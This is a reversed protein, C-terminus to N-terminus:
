NEIIFALHKLAKSIHKEVATTSINLEEAIERNKLGDIRSMTFVERCRDPLNAIVNDIQLKLEDLLLNCDTHGLFDLHYLDETKNPNNSNDLYDTQYREVIIKHKLYNLARNRVMTFLLACISIDTLQEKKEYFQVFVDQVLDKADDTDFVFKKAYSLLRRYYIDFLYEFAKENGKKIEKLLVQNNSLATM